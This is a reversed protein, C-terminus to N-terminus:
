EPCPRCELLPQMWMQPGAPLLKSQCLCGAQVKGRFSRPVVQSCGCFHLDPLRLKSRDHNSKTSSTKKAV